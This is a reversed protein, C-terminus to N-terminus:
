QPVNVRVSLSSQWLLRTSFLKLSVRTPMV